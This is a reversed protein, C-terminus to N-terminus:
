HEQILLGLGEQAKCLGEPEDPGWSRQVAWAVRSSLWDQFKFPLGQDGDV